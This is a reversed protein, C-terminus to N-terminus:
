VGLRNFLYQGAVNKTNKRPMNKRKREREKKKRREIERKGERGGM